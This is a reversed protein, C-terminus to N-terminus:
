MSLWIFFDIKKVNSISKFEPFTEDFFAICEKADKTKLYSDYWNEIESYIKIASQIKEELTSGEIEKNFFGLVNRDVIPKTDDYTHLMKSAFSFECRNINPKQSLDRIIEEFTSEKTKTSFVDYYDNKWEVSRRAGNIGYYANFKKQFETDLPNVNKQIWSYTNLGFREKLRQEYADKANDLTLTENLNEEDM